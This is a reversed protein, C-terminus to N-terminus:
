ILPPLHSEGCSCGTTLRAERCVHRMDFLEDALECSIVIKDGCSRLNDCLRLGLLQTFVKNFLCAGSLAGADYEKVVFPFFRSARNSRSELDRARRPEGPEEM